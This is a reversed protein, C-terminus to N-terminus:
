VRARERAEVRWREPLVGKDRDLVRIEDDREVM